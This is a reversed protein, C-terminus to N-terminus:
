ASFRLPNSGIGFSIPVARPIVEIILLVLNKIRGPTGTSYLFIILSWIMGVNKLDTELENGVNVRLVVPIM